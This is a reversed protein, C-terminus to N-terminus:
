ELLGALGFVRPHTKRKVLPHTVLLTVPPRPRTLRPWYMKLYIKKNKNLDDQPLM